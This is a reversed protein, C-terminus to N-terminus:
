GIWWGNTFCLDSPVLATPWCTNIVRRQTVHYPICNESVHSIRSSDVIVFCLLHNTYIYKHQKLRTVSLLNYITESSTDLQINNRIITEQMKQKFPTWALAHRRVEKFRKCTLGLFDPCVFMIKRIISKMM